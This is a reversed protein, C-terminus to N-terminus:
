VAEGRAPVQGGAAVVLADQEAQALVTHIFKWATDPIYDRAETDMNGATRAASKADGALLHKAVITMDRADDIVLKQMRPVGGWERAQARRLKAAARIELAASKYDLKKPEVALPEEGSGDCHTCKM